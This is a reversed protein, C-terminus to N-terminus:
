LWFMTGTFGTHGFTSGRAFRGGRPSVAYGTDCDFALSRIDDHPLPIPTLMRRVVGEPLLRRGDIEGGGVVARGFRAIDAGTGFLGAHGAVGGLAYSRPDHVEGRMWHGNRQETPAARAKHAEDPLFSTDAMGLPKYIEEATFQDLSRGDVAKVLEGLVIYNVDSYVFRAGPQTAPKLALAKAIASAPGAAYDTIANDPIAGSVHLMLQEVTVDEKGGAAYGSLYRSVPAKLDIKGREALILVSTATPRPGPRSVPASAAVLTM